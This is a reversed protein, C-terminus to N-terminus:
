FRKMTTREVKDTTFNSHRHISFAGTPGILADTLRFLFPLSTLHLSISLEDMM